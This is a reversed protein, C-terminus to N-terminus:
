EASTLSLSSIWDPNRAFANATSKALGCQPLSQGAVSETANGCGFGPATRWSRTTGAIPQRCTAQAWHGRTPRRSFVSWGSSRPLPGNLMWLAYDDLLLRADTLRCNRFETKGSLSNRRGCDNVAHTLIAGVVEILMPAVRQHSSQARVRSERVSRRTLILRASHTTELM